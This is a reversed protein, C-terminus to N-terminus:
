IQQKTENTLISFEKYTDLILSADEVAIKSGYLLITKTLVDKDVINIKLLKTREIIDKIKTGNKGIIGGIHESAYEYELKVIQLKESVFNVNTENDGTVKFLALEENPM